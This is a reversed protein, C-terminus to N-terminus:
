AHGRRRTKGSSRPPRYIGLERGTITFHAAEEAVEPRRQKLAQIQRGFWADVIGRLLKLAWIKLRRLM